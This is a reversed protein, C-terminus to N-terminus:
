LWYDFFRVVLDLILLLTFYFFPNQYFGKVLLYIFVMLPIVAGIQIELYHSWGELLSLLSCMSYIGIFSLLLKQTKELSSRLIAWIGIFTIVMFLILGGRSFPSNTTLATLMSLLLGGVLIPYTKNKISLAFCIIAILLISLKYIIM